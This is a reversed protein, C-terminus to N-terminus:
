VIDESWLALRIDRAQTFHHEAISASKESDRALIAEVLQRHEDIATEWRGPYSLTTAPYRALHLSLRGLLDVLSENHSALWIAQHFDRNHRALAAPEVKAPDPPNQLARELRIRDFQTHREAAVRAVTSELVIRTEYIDLVEEPSRERVRLGRDSREVIGDQELRLLAERIPTRSVGFRKAITAEVLPAGPEFTADLIAQKIREYVVASNLQHGEALSDTM